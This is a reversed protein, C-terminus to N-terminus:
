MEKIQQLCRPFIQTLNAVYQLTIGKTALQIHAKAEVIQHKIYLKGTCNFYLKKKMLIKKRETISGIKECDTSNNDTNECYVCKKQHQKTNLLKEGHLGIGKKIGNNSILNRQTWKKLATVFQPFEWEQWNYDNIVTDSRIGPLDDLVTKVYGNIMNLKGMTELAQVRKFLKSYFGHIIKPNTGNVVPLGMIGHVHADIM